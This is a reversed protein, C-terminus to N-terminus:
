RRILSSGTTSMDYGNVQVAYIGHPLGNLSITYSISLDTYRDSKLLVGSTSYINVTFAKTPISKFDIRVDGDSTPYIKVATPQSSSLGKIGNIGLIDLLGRYADVEGYGYDNNPYSLSPDHHSCTRSFIGKIDELTLTPKAQLWLAIVGGVVPSSMSTGSNTNWAYTRGGFQFHEVDWTIDGADPNHELYYSSYSSIINTGPAMVDPKIRGDLTPGVSSYNAREGNTGQIFFKYEGKYNIIGTRYSTAGVSIVSPASSPSNICHTIDGANLTADKANTTLFGVYQFYEVDIGKGVAEFSLDTNNWFNQNSTIIVDYATKNVGYHSHYGQVKFIYQFDAITITDEFLSDKRSLINKTPILLTDIQDNHYFKFRLFMDNSGILSFYINKDWASIFAGKSEEEATKHFHRNLQGNNGASSVIIRGSGVLKDLAAYYLSDDGSISENGGESFSIVCPQNVSQAYDFIYMFGMLDTASTYKYRDVSDILDYNDGAGNAVLCIDSEYAIGRYKSNYGSGAAIGLTHTGHTQSEGDRSHAYRLLVRKSTYDNGVYFRSGFTDVSLQDWLRKIRYKTATSDYFNPHTLDFGIDQIGMVVGKGTFAQPLNKGAYVPLANIHLATSDMLASCSRNAEIRKVNTDLSLAGLRSLPIDAIYTDGFCALQHCGNATLISDAKQRIRVFACIRAKRTDAISPSLRRGGGNRITVNRVLSSMKSYDANQAWGQIVFIFVFLSFILRKM